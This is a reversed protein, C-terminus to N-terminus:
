ELFEKVHLELTYLPKHFLVYINALLFILTFIISTIYVFGLGVFVLALFCLFIGLTDIKIKRYLLRSFGVLPLLFIYKLTAIIFLFLCIAIFVLPINFTFPLSVLCLGLLVDLFHQIFNNKPTISAFVRISFYTNILLLIHFCIMPLAIYWDLHSFLFVIFAWFSFGLSALLARKKAYPSFNDSIKM